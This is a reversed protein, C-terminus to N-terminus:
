CGLNRMSTGVVLYNLSLMKGYIMSVHCDHLSLKRWNERVVLSSEHDICHTVILIPQSMPKVQLLTSSRAVSTREFM